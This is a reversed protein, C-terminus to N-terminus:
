VAFPNFRGIGRGAAIVYGIAAAATFLFLASAHFQKKVNVNGPCTDGRQALDGWLNLGLMKRMPTISCEELGVIVFNEGSAVVFIANEYCVIHRGNWIQESAPNRFFPRM